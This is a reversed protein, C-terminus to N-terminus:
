QMQVWHRMARFAPYIFGRDTMGDLALDGYTCHSGQALDALRAAISGLEHHKDFYARAAASIPLPDSIVARLRELLSAAARDAPGGRAIDALSYGDREHLWSFAYGAPVKRYSLDLLLTPVGLRAGELASTGMAILVDTRQALHEEVAALPLEGLFRVQVNACALVDKRLQAEHDGGGIVDCEIPLGLTRQIADLQEIANRLPYYKFDVLRGVWTVRLKDGASRAAARSFAPAAPAPIALMPAEGVEIGLYQETTRLNTRDMFALAQRSLLLRVFRTMTNRYSRLVTRLLVAGIAANSQMLRRLGPMTPVLNFPHCNWFLLRARQPFRLSPFISWPTMAQLVVVCDEPLQLPVDDRYELLRTQPNRNRAMFGDAYDVIATRVGNRALEEALRLFLVSVGGVGHYPFCFILQDKM